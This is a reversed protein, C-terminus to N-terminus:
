VQNIYIKYWKKIGNQAEQSTLNVEYPTPNFSGVQTGEETDNVIVKVQLKADTPTSAFGGSTYVGFGTADVGDLTFSDNDIVTIFYYNSNLETTGGVANIFVQEGTEYGHGPIEILCPDTNDVNTIYKNDTLSTGTTSVYFYVWGCRVKKNQESFPNFKKTKTQFNIVKSATGSGTYTSFQSTNIEIDFVYNPTNISKIAGQKDNAELMGSIGEFAIIDGEEYNQFDTTVRLTQNDIVTMGRIKVPYDEVEIVNLKFIQGEHGGGIAFPAGESYAFSNWNGYVADLEDWNDYILLDDWTVDFAGIVDGMCSLPTRYVSYNDEEYNTVLIRDSIEEGPTPHILYHDRNSDVAGAFCQGFRSQDIQNFSYQPIKDDSRVVSYGDSLILGRTSAASTRNLYTITGFPAQSGRSEDIRDLAFPVVDSGTFKLTWVSSETFILL